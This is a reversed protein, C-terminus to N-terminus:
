IRPLLTACKEHKFKKAFFSFILGNKAFFSFNVFFWKYQLLWDILIKISSHSNILFPWIENSLRGVYYFRILIILIEIKVFISRNQILKPWNQTMKQWKKVCNKTFKEHAWRERPIERWDMRRKERFVIFQAVSITLCRRM